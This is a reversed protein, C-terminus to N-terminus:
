TSTSDSDVSRLRAPADYVLDDVAWWRRAIADFPVIPVLADVRGRRAGQTACLRRFPGLPPPSGGARPKKRTRDFRRVVGLKARNRKDDLPGDKTSNQIKRPVSLVQPAPGFQRRAGHSRPRTAARGALSSGDAAPGSASMLVSLQTRPSYLPFIFRLSRTLNLALNM